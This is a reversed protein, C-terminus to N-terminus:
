VTGNNLAGKRTQQKPQRQQKTKQSKLLFDVYANLMDYHKDDIQDLKDVMVILKNRNRENDAARKMIRYYKELLEYDKEHVVINTLVNINEPDEVLDAKSIGFYNAMKEIADIRPYTNGKLWDTLTTYKIGLDKCMDSRTKGNLDMYRKINKAMVKKNGLGNKM